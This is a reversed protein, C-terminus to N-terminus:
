PDISIDRDKGLRRPANLLAKAQKEKASDVPNSTNRNTKARKLIMVPCVNDDNYKVQCNLCYLCENVNIDGMPTIAQVMCDQACLHCPDGCNRYRKLWGFIAMKGPIALAAGLPCLYRCYFREIFLGAGLLLVAFLVFPWERVFRLVISTKFPEVEALKEAFALSYLSVGLLVIFIIYKIPWLREHLGWPLRYQPIKLKKAVQNLLEQLAGFPCLWGCFAGRGWFILSIVVSCWLIFILPDILFYDWSFDKLLSNFFVFVNVVSLQAQSYWGIWVLTFLLFGNRFWRTFRPYIVLYHQFFFMVTLLTIAIILIIIQPTKQLWIRQWLAPQDKLEFSQTSTKDVTKESSLIVPETILYRNPILYPIEFNVFTKDIAGITRPVLLQLSWSKTPDFSEQATLSFVGLEKFEPAGDAYVQRLRKHGRDRFRISAYDQHIQIRDFIGGRVYGSGKFSFKGNGMILFSNELSKQRKQLNHYEDEGLLSKAISPIALSAVFMDIFIDEPNGQEARKIAELNGTKEFATNIDGITLKLRRVSGDGIMQLWDLKENSSTNLTNTVTQSEAVIIGLSQAMKIASVRISDDIVLVTVTAGSVIDSPPTLNKESSFAEITDFNQYGNIFDTINEEPIGALVIPESHDVLKAGKLKGKTDMGLLIHIPKGSYGIASHFDSNLFVYGVVEGSSLASVIKEDPSFDGYQEAQPVLQNVNVKSIFSKLDSAFSYSVSLPFFSLIIAILWLSLFSSFMRCIIDVISTRSVM